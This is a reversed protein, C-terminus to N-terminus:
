ELDRLGALYRDLEAEGMDLAGARLLQGLKHAIYGREVQEMAAYTERFADPAIVFHELAYARRIRTDARSSELCLREFLSHYNKDEENTPRLTRMFISSIQLASGGVMNLVGWLAFPALPPFLAGGIVIGLGLLSGGAGGLAAVKENIEKERRRFFDVMDEASYDVGTGGMAAMIGALDTLGGTLEDLLEAYHRPLKKDRHYLLEYDTLLGDCRGSLTAKGEIVENLLPYTYALSEISAKEQVINADLIDYSAADVM